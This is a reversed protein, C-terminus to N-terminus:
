QVFLISVVMQQMIGLILTIFGFMFLMSCMVPISRLHNAGHKKELALGFELLGYGMLILVIALGILLM